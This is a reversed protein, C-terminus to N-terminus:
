RIEISITKAGVSIDSEGEIANTKLLEVIRQPDFLETYALLLLRDTGLPEYFEVPYPLVVLSHPPILNCETSVASWVGEADIDIISIFLAEDSENSVKMEVSEGVHVTHVAQHTAPDTAYLALKFSSNLIRYKTDVNAKLWIALAEDVNEGRYTVGGRTDYREDLKGFMAKTVEAFAERTLSKAHARQTATLTEVKGGKESQVAYVKRRNNDLITLSGNRSTRVKDKGTLPQAKVLAKWAKGDFREATGNISFVQYDQAKLTFPFFHFSFAFLAIAILHKM